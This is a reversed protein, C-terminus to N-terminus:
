LHRCYNNINVNIECMFLEFLKMLVIPFYGILRTDHTSSNGINPYCQNYVMQLFSVSSFKTLCSNRIGWSMNRVSFLLRKKEEEPQPIHNM